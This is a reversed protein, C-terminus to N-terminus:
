EATDDAANADPRVPEGCHFWRMLHVQSDVGFHRYIARIHSKVTDSSVRLLEAIEHLLM